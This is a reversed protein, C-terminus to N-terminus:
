SARAARALDGPSRKPRDRHRRSRGGLGGFQRGVGGSRRDSGGRRTASPGLPGTGGNRVSLVIAALAASPAVWADPAEMAKLFAGTIACWAAPIALPAWRVRGSALMIVGLTGVATPDPALGFIEAARWGRGLVPAILPYLVLAFFFIWFGTRRVAGPRAELALRGRAVGTWLLLAAELAFAWAFYLAAWNITAYRRAHFAVAVWLWCAALIAAASRSRKASPRLLFVLIAFGAAIAALQGPWIARNYLEFLRYYTRPSFLLFSSLRYTWWESM